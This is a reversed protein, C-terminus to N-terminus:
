LWNQFEGETAVVIALDNFALTISDDPNALLLNFGGAVRNKVLRNWASTRTARPVTVTRDATLLGSFRWVSCAFQEPTLEIDRDSVPILAVSGNGHSSEIRVVRALLQKAFQVLDRVNNQIRDLAANGTQESRHTPADAM